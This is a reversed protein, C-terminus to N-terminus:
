DELEDLLSELEKSEEATLLSYSKSSANETNALVLESDSDKSCGKIVPEYLYGDHNLIDNIDWLRVSGDLSASLVKGQIIIFSEISDVHAQIEKICEGSTTDWIKIIGERSGTFVLGKELVVLLSKIVQSHIFESEKEGTSLNWECVSKDASATWISSQTASIDFVNSKCSVKWFDDSNVSSNQQSLDMFDSFALLKSTKANWSLVTTDSSGSFLVLQDPSCTLCEVARTHEKSTQLCSFDPNSNDSMGTPLSWKKISKDSSGSFFYQSDKPVFITKVFDSHGTYIGLLQTTSVDWLRISKDWSATLVFDQSSNGSNSIPAVCTVPGSHGKLTKVLFKSHIFDEPTNYSPNLNISILKATSDGCAVWIFTKNNQDSKSVQNHAKALNLLKVNVLCPFGLKKRYPDNLNKVREQIAAQDQESQFFMVTNSPKPQM